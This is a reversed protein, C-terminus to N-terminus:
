GVVVVAFDALLQLFMEVYDKHKESCTNAKTARTQKRAYIADHMLQAVIFRFVKYMKKPNKHWKPTVENTYVLVLIRQFRLTYITAKLINVEISRM